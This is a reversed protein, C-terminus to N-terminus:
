EIIKYIGAPLDARNYGTTFDQVSKYQGDYCPILEGDHFYGSSLQIMGPNKASRHVAKFTTCSDLYFGKIKGSETLRYLEAFIAHNRNWHRDFTKYKGGSHLSKLAADHLNKIRLTVM